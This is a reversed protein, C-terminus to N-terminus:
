CREVLLQEQELAKGTRSILQILQVLDPQLIDQKPPWLHRQQEFLVPDGYQEMLTEIVDPVFFRCRDEGLRALYENCYMAIGAPDFDGFHLYPNKMSELWSLLSNSYYRLVFVMRDDPFLYRLREAKQFCEPNEVGIVLVSSPVSLKSADHIFYEAGEPLPALDKGGVNLQIGFAKIFFGQMGKQRLIKTSTTAQLSDEGDLDTQEMLEVYSELDAIGMHLRLYNHLGAPNSCRYVARNRGSAIRSVVRDDVLQKLLKRNSFASANVAEGEILRLLNCAFGRSLKNRRM